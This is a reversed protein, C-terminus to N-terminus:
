AASNNADAMAKISARPVPVARASWLTLTDLVPSARAWVPPLSATPLAESLSASLSWSASASPSSPSASAALQVGVGVTVVAVGLRGVEAAGGVETVTLGADVGAVGVGGADESAGEHVLHGLAVVVVIVIVIVIVVVIVVIVIVVIVIVVVVPVPLLM